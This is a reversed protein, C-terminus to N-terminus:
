DLMTHYDEVLSKRYVTLLNLVIVIIVILIGVSKKLDVMIAVDINKSRNLLAEKLSKM